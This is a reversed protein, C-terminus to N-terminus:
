IVKNRFFAQAVEKRMYTWDPPFESFITTVDNFIKKPVEWSNNFWYVISDLALAHEWHEFYDNACEYFELSLVNKSLIIVKWVLNRYNNYKKLQEKDM